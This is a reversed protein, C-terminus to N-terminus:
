LSFALRQAPQACSSSGAKASQEMATLTPLVYHLLAPASCHLVCCQQKSLLELGRSAARKDSEFAITYAITQCAKPAHSQRELPCKETRRMVHSREARRQAGRRRSGNGQASKGASPRAALMSWRDFDLAPASVFSTQTARRLGECFVPKDLRSTSQPSCGLCRLDKPNLFKIFVNAFLFLSEAADSPTSVAQGSRM